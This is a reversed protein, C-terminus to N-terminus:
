GPAHKVMAEGPVLQVVSGVPFPAGGASNAAARTADVNGLLNGVYFGRVATLGRIFSFSSGAFEVKAFAPKAAPAATTDANPAPSNGAGACATVFAIAVAAIAYSASSKM